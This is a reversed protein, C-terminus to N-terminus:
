MQHRGLPVDLVVGDVVYWGDQDAVVIQYRANDNDAKATDDYEERETAAAPATLYSILLILTLFVYDNDYKDDDTNDVVANDDDAKATDDYEEGETAAAPSTLYSILFIVTLDVNDNIMIMSKMTLIRLLLVTM